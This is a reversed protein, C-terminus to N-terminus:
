PPRPGGRYFYEYKRRVLFFSFNGPRAKEKVKFKSGHVKFTLLAEM